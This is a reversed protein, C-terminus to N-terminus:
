WNMFLLRALIQKRELNLFRKKKPTEVFLVLEQKLARKRLLPHKQLPISTHINLRRLLLKKQKTVSLVLRKATGTASCSAAQVIEETFSHGTAPTTKTEEYDCNACKYVIIGANECSAAEQSAVELEHNHHPVYMINNEQIARNIPAAIATLVFFVGLLIM